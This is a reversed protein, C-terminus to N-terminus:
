PLSSAEIVAREAQTIGYLAYVEEDIATQSTTIQSRIIRLAEGSLAAQQPVLKLLTEVHAVIRDHAAKEAPNTFDIPQIPLNKIYKEIMRLLVQESAIPNEFSM